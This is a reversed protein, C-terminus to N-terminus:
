VIIDVSYHRQDIAVLSPLITVYSASGRVIFDNLVKMLHDELTVQFVFVMIGEIGSHREGCFTVPHDSVQALGIVM